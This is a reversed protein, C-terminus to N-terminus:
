LSRDAENEYLALFWTAKVGCYLFLFWKEGTPLMTIKDGQPRKYM